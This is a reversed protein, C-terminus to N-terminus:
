EGHNTVALAGKGWATQRGVGTWRAARLFPLFEGLEGEYEAHGIFGGLSHIRGTRASRRSAEVHRIECCTMQVRAAREGFERFDLELPGEGYLASLTSIRDRLRAALIGFEPQAVTRGGAKLETPTQFCVTVRNAREGPPDLNIQLPAESGRVDLLEAGPLEGFARIALDVSPRQLDFWYFDFEFTESASIAAGDLHQARFVFPRPRDALGSPGSDSSPEFVSAANLKHLVAGFAGRLRNAAADPPFSHPERALFTFRLPYM